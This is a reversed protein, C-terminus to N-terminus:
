KSSLVTFRTTAGYTEIIATGEVWGAVSPYGNPSDYAWLRAGDTRRIAVIRRDNFVVLMREEDADCRIYPYVNPQSLEGDLDTSWRAV